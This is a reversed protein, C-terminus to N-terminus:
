KLMSETVLDIIYSSVWFIYILYECRKIEALLLHSISPQTRQVVVTYLLM